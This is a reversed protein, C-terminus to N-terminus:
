NYKHFKTVAFTATLGERDIQAYNREVSNLSRAAYAIPHEPNDELKHVPVAGAGYASVDYSIVLQKQPDYQVLLKDSTLLTKSQHFGKARGKETEM